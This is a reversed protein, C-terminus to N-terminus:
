LFLQLEGKDGKIKKKKKKKKKKEDVDDLAARPIPDQRMFVGGGRESPSGADGVDWADISLRVAGGRSEQSPLSMAAVLKPETGDARLVDGPKFVDRASASLPRQREM